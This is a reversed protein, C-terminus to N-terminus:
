MISICKLIKWSCKPITNALFTTSNALSYFSLAISNWSIITTIAHTVMGVEQCSIKHALPVQRGVQEVNQTAGKALKTILISWAATVHVYVLWYSNYM